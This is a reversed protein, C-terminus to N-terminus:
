ATGGAQPGAAVGSPVAATPGSGGAPRTGFRTMVAAGLGVTWAIYEALFGVILLASAVVWAPWGGLSVIRGVITLAWISLLGVLLLLYASQRPWRLRQEVFRGVRYAVGTFGFVLAAIFALIALPPIFLLLPIGVISIALIIITLLFVPLFLLQTFVGVLGAKWPEMAAAHEIRDIPGRALLFVLFALLGFLVMRFLTAMVEVWPGFRGSLFGTAPLWFRPGFRIHPIRLGIENIRGDVEAQPDKDVSGGVATVDGAVRAKPGLHVSGGIAVVDQRVDGNVTVAGGIAVVPGDVSEGENVQVSGGIHVKADSRRTERRSPETSASPAPGEPRVEREPEAPPAASPEGQKGFGFL